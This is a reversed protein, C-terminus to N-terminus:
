KMVQCHCLSLASSLSNRNLTHLLFLNLKVGQSSENQVCLSFLAGINLIQFYSVRGRLPANMSNLPYNIFQNTFCVFLCVFFLFLFFLVFCFFSRGISFQTNEPITCCYKQYLCSILFMTMPETKWTKSCFPLGM